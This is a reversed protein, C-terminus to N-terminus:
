QEASTYAKYEEADMLADLEKVGDEGVQVKAIWGGGHSDDEPVQNITGPKEELVVNVHTIKCSVPANIDAASKVSEVAGITDGRGVERGEEPLEVYVVDGLEEAAYESIGIVGTTKDANLDIWEHDKTYKRIERIPSASLARVFPAAPWNARLCPTQALKSFASPRAARLCRAISAM